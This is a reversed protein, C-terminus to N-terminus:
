PEKEELATLYTRFATILTFFAGVMPVVTNWSLAHDIRFRDESRGALLIALIFWLLARNKKM